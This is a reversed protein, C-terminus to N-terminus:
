KSLISRLFFLSFTDSGITEGFWVLFFSSFYFLIFLSYCLLVFHFSFSSWSYYYFSSILRLLRQRFSIPSPSFFLIFYFLIFIFYFFFLFTSSFFFFFFSLELQGVSRRFPLNVVATRKWLERPYKENLRSRAKLIPFIKQWPLCSRFPRFLPRCDDTFKM